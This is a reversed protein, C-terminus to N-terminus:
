LYTKFTVFSAVSLWDAADTSTGVGCVVATTQIKYRTFEKVGIVVLGEALNEIGVVVFGGDLIRRLNGPDDGYGINTGLLCHRGGPM